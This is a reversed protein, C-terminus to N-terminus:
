NQPNKAAEFEEQLKAAKEEIEKVNKKYENLVVKFKEHLDTKTIHLERIKESFQMFEDSLLVSVEM